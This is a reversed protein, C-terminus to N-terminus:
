IRVHKGKSQSSHHLPLWCNTAASMGVCTTHMYYRLEYHCLLNIITLIKVNYRELLPSEKQQQQRQQSAVSSFYLSYIVESRVAYFVGGGFNQRNYAYDNGLFWIWRATALCNINKDPDAICSEPKLDCYAFNYFLKVYTMGSFEQLRLTILQSVM